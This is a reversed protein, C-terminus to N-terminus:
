GRSCNYGHDRFIDLGLKAAHADKFVFGRDEAQELFSLDAGVAYDAATAGTAAWLVLGCALLLRGRTM